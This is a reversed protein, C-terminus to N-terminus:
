RLRWSENFCTLTLGARADCAAGITFRHVVACSALKNRWVDDDVMRVQSQVEFGADRLKVAIVDEDML